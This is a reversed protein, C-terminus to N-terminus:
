PARKVEQTVPEESLVENQGLLHHFIDLSAPVDGARATLEQSEQNGGTHHYALAWVEPSSPTRVPSLSM